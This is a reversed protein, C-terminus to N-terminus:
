RSGGSRSKGLLLHWVRFGLDLCSRVLDLFSLRTMLHTCALPSCYTSEPELAANVSQATDIDPRALYFDELPLLYGPADGESWTNGATGKRLPPVKVFWNGAKDVILYPKELTYQTKDVVTFPEDPWEGEPPNDCGVFVMNWSGGVWQKWDCNRSFWQQQTGSLVAGDVKCDAM